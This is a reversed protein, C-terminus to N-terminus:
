ATHFANFSNQNEQKIVVPPEQYGTALETSQEVSAKKLWWALESFSTRAKHYMVSQVTCRLLGPHSAMLASCLQTHDGLWALGQCPIIGGLALTFSTGEKDATCSSSPFSIVRCPLSIVQCTFASQQSARGRGVQHHEKQMKSFLGSFVCILPFTDLCLSLLSSIRWMAPLLCARLPSHPHCRKAWSWDQCLHCFSVMHELEATHLTRLVLAKLM